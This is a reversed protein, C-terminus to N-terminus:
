PKEEGSVGRKLSRRSGDETTSQTEARGDSLKPNPPLVGCVGIHVLDNCEDCGEPVCGVDRLSQNLCAIFNLSPFKGDLKVLGEDAYLRMLNSQNLFILRQQCGIFCEVLLKSIVVLPLLLAGSVRKGTNAGSRHHIDQIWCLWRSLGRMPKAGVAVLVAVLRHQLTGAGQNPMVLAWSAPSLNVGFLSIRGGLWASWRVPAPKLNPENM